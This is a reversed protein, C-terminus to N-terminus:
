RLGSKEIARAVERDLWRDMGILGPEVSPGHGKFMREALEWSQATVTRSWDAFAASDAAHKPPNAAIISQMARLAVEQWFRTKTMEATHEIITQTM